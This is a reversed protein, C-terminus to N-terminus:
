QQRRLFNQVEENRLTSYREKSESYTPLQLLKADSREVPYFFELEYPESEDSMKSLVFNQLLLITKDNVRM